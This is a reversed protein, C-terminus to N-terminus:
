SLALGTDPSVDHTIYGDAARYRANIGLRDNRGQHVSLLRGLLRLDVLLRLRLGGLQGRDALNM